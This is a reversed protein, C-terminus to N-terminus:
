GSSRFGLDWFALGQVRFREVGLSQISGWCAWCTGM